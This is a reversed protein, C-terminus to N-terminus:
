GPPGIQDYENRRERNPCRTGSENEGKLYQQHSISGQRQPHSGPHNGDGGTGDLFSHADGYGARPDAHRESLREINRNMALGEGKMEQCIRGFGKGLGERSLGM